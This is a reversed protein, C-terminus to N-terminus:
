CGCVCLSTHMDYVCVCVCLCMWMFVHVCVCVCMCVRACMSAYWTKVPKVPQFFKHNHDRCTWPLGQGLCSVTELKVLAIYNSSIYSCHTSFIWAVVRRPVSEVQLLLGMAGERVKSWRSNVHLKSEVVEAQWLRVRYIFFPRGGLTSWQCTVCGQWKLQSIRAWCRPVSPPWM